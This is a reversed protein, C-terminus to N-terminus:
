GELIKMLHVRASKLRKSIMQQSVGHWSALENVSYGLICHSILVDREHPPLSCIAIEIAVVESQDKEFLIANPLDNVNESRTIIDAIASTNRLYRRANNYTPKNINETIVEQATRRSVKNPDTAQKCREYYDREVMEKCECDPIEFDRIFCPYAATQTNKEYKVSIKM